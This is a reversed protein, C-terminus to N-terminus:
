SSMILRSLRPECSTHPFVSGRLRGLAFDPVGVLNTSYRPCLFGTERGLGLTRSSIDERAANLM